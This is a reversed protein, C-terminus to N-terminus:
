VDRVYWDISEGSDYSFEVIVRREGPAWCSRYGRRFYNATDDLYTGYVDFRNYVQNVTLGREMNDVEVHSVCTETDATAVPAAVGISAGILAASVIPIAFM